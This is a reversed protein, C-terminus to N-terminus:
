IRGSWAKWRGREVANLFTFIIDNLLAPEELNLLHSTRPLVCLAADPLVSKLFINPEICPADEDGIMLLIPVKLNRLPAELHWLSPRAALIGRLTMAM